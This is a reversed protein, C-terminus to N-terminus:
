GPQEFLVTNTRTSSVATSTQVAHETASGRLVIRLGGHGAEWKKQLIVKRKTYGEFTIQLVVFRSRPIQLKNDWDIGSKNARSIM